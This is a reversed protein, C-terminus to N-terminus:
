LWRCWSGAPHWWWGWGWGCGRKQKLSKNIELDM